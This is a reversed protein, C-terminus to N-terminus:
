MWHSLDKPAVRREMAAQRASYDQYNEGMWVTAAMKSTQFVSGSLASVKSQETRGSWRSGTYTGTRAASFLPTPEYRNM